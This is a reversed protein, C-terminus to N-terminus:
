SGFGLADRERTFQKIAADVKGQRFALRDGAFHNAIPWAGLVGGGIGVTAGGFVTVMEIFPDHGRYAVAGVAAGLMLGAVVGGALYPGYLDERVQVREEKLKEIRADYLDRMVSASVNHARVPQGGAVSSM